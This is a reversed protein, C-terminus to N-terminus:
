NQDKRRRTFYLGGLGAGAMLLLALAGLINSDDGTKTGTGAEEESTYTNTFVFEPTDVWEGDLKFYKEDLQLKGDKETVNAQVAYITDDYECDPNSGAVETIEYEYLGPETYEIIGFETTGEGTITVTKVAGNSGAPMNSKAAESTAKMQFTYTEAKKPGDGEVVKTVPPDIFVTGPTVPTYENTFEATAEEGKKVTATKETETSAALIYGAYDTGSETVTYTGVPLGTLTYEGNTFESYAVEKSYNNPGTVTFKLNAPAEGEPLGTITKTIKLSGSDQTYANTFAATATANSAVTATKETETDAALTYNTYDTGSETVTYTGVPLGTLTYEGNTFESYAVEKSYNNPGTVTFKLNA